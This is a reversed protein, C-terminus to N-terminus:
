VQKAGNNEFNYSVGQFISKTSDRIHPIFLHDIFGEGAKIVGPPKYPRDFSGVILSVQAVSLRYMIEQRLDIKV